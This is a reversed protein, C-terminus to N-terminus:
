GSRPGFAELYGNGGDYTAVFVEGDAVVATTIPSHATAVIGVLKGATTYVRIKKATLEPIYVLGNSITPSRPATSLITQESCPVSEYTRKWLVYRTALSRATLIATLPGAGDNICGEEINQYITGGVVAPASWTDYGKALVKGWV